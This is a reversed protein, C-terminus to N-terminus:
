PTFVSCGGKLHRCYWGMPHFVLVCVCPQCLHTHIDPHSSFVSSLQLSGSPFNLVFFFPGFFSCFSPSYLAPYFFFLLNKYFVLSLSIPHPLSCSCLHLLLFLSLLFDFCSRFLVLKRNLQCRSEFVFVFLLLQLLSFRKLHGFLLSSTVM